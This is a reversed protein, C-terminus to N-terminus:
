SAASPEGPLPAAPASTCPSDSPGPDTQLESVAPPLAPLLVPLAARITVCLADGKTSWLKVFQELQQASRRVTVRAVDLAKEQLAPDTHALKTDLSTRLSQDTLVVYDHWTGLLDQMRKFTKLVGPPVGYGQAAAMELGYRLAKGAIRLQHPNHSEDVRHSVPSAQEVFADLQAHLSDALLAPFAGVSEAIRERVPHWAGLDALVEAPSGRKASAARLQDREALVHAALWEAAAALKPAATALEALHGLMVDADRLPGLRRRLRRLAKALPKRRKKGLIPKMLDLAAALRRTAVRAQHVAETDWDNLARPVHTQLAEMLRDLHALLPLQPDAAAPEM